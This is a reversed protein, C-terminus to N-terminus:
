SLNPNQSSGSIKKQLKTCIPEKSYGTGPGKGDSSFRKDLRNTDKFVAIGLRVQHDGPTSSNEALNSEKVPQLLKHVSEISKMETEHLRKSSHHLSIYRTLGHKDSIAVIGSNVRDKDHVEISNTKAHQPPLTPFAQGRSYGVATLVALLIITMDM